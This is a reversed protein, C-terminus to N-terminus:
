KLTTVYQIRRGGCKKKYAAANCVDILKALANLCERFTDFLAHHSIICLSTLTHSRLAQVRMSPAKRSSGENSSTSEVSNQDHLKKNPRYKRKFPRYFNLCTGYRRRGSDKDTLAFVFSQRDRLSMQKAGITTCGEPQCFFATDPPLRFDDHDQAPYNRLIQPQQPTESDANPNANGIIVIYDVLRPCFYKLQEVMKENCWHVRHQQLSFM